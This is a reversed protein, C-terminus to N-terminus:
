YTATGTKQAIFQKYVGETVILPRHQRNKAILRGLDDKAIKIM